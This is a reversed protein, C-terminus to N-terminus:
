ALKRHHQLIHFEVRRLAMCNVGVHPYVILSRPFMNQNVARQKKGGWKGTGPTVDPRARAPARHSWAVCPNQTKPNAKGRGGKAETELKPMQPLSRFFRVYKGNMWCSVPLPPFRFIGTGVAIRIKRIAIARPRCDITASLLPLM